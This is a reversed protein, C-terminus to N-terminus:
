GAQYTSASVRQFVRGRRRGGGGRGVGGGGVVVVVVVVAVAIVGFSARAGRWIKSTGNM